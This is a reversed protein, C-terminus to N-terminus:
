LVKEIVGGGYGYKLIIYHRFRSGGLKEGRGGLRIKLVGKPSSKKKEEGIKGQEGKSYTKIPLTRSTKWRLSVM